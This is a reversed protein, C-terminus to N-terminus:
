VKQIMYLWKSFITSSSITCGSTTLFLPIVNKLHFVGEIHNHIGDILHKLSSDVPKSKLINLVNTSKLINNSLEHTKTKSFGSTSITAIINACDTIKEFEEDSFLEYEDLLVNVFM